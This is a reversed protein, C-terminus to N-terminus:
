IARRYNTFTQYKGLLKKSKRIRPMSRNPRIPELNKIFADQLYLLIEKPNNELFLKVINNKMKAWSINNNIQYDYKRKESIQDVLTECQKKIISQLNMVFISAYFDQQICQLRHGSFIETQLQNKLKGYAVEIGWRMAYLQKFDDLTIGTEFLNTILVETEGTKLVVKILKVEITTNSTLIYGYKRLEAIANANPRLKVIRSQKSSCLFAKIERWSNTKSRMVFHRPQEQNQLLYILAYSPFGRDFLSLSNGPLLNINENMIQQESKSIPFLDGWLTIENLVDYIKMIRAMPVKVNKHQNTHTGFYNVIEPKNFLYETSGDVALLVFGRWCKLKDRYHHYFSNAFLYNWFKFFVPLLKGRQLSFAGKTSTSGKCDITSFFDDLEITLSRRLLNFILFVTKSFTLKRNRTFDTPSSTFHNKIGFDKVILDLFSKLDSIIKLNTEVM